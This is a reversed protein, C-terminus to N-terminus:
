SVLPADRWRELQRRHRLIHVIAHELMQEVDYTQKWRTVFKLQGQQDDTWDKIRELLDVMRGFAEWLSAMAESANGHPFERKQYGRDVGDLADALYNVYNHAAGITHNLIDRVNAFDKDALTTRAEYRETPLARLVQEFDRIARAYEDLIARMSGGYNAWRNADNPATM